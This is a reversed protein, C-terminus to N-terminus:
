TAGCRPGSTPSRVAAESGDTRDASAGFDIGRVTSCGLQSLRDVVGAGIGTGDVFM